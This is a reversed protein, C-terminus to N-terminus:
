DKAAIGRSLFGAVRPARELYFQDLAQMNFPQTQVLKPIDRNLHCGGGIIKSIPTLRHQWTQVRPDPSLGHELFLLRGGPKLVRHIQALAESANPISCMAFTSVVTDFTGDPMPLKEAAILRKEVAVPAAAIRREVIRNMGPNPDVTTIKRIQAPYYQLNVGTGFGVELVEGRADALLDRRCGALFDNGMMWDLVHPFIVSSYLGM